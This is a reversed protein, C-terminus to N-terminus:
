LVGEGRWRGAIVRGRTMGWRLRNSLRTLRGGRVMYTPITRGSAIREAMDLAEAEDMRDGSELMPRQTAGSYIAFRGAPYREGVPHAFPVARRECLDLALLEHFLTPEGFVMDPAERDLIAEIAAAYYAYHAHGAEFHERGRDTVLVPFDEVGLDPRLDPARPFPIRHVRGPLARAFLPNQVLWAVDHGQAALRRAIAAWFLTKERNEIFLLRAM